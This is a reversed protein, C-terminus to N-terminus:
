RNPRVPFQLSNYPSNQFHTQRIGRLIRVQFVSRSYLGVIFYIFVFGRKMKMMDSVNIDAQTLVGAAGDVAVNDGMDVAVSKGVIAGGVCDGVFKGKGVRVSADGVLPEEGVTMGSDFMGFKSWIAM